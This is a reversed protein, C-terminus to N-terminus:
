KVYAVVLGLQLSLDIRVVKLDGLLIKIENKRHLWLMRMRNADSLHDSIAPSSSLLTNISDILSSARIVPRLLGESCLKSKNAEAFVAVDHLSSQLSEIEQILEDIEQPAKWCQRFKRLTRVGSQAATLIAWVSACVSLPDM